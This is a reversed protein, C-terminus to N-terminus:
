LLFSCRTRTKSIWGFNTETTAREFVSIFPMNLFM